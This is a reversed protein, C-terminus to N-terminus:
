GVVAIREGDGAVDKIESAAREGSRMAGAITGPREVSTAEGAFFVREILATALAQRETSTAGAPTVSLAGRAFPDEAWSTRFFSTPAPVEGVPTPTVTPQRTKTPDPSPLRDPTCSALLM